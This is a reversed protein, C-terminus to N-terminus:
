QSLRPKFASAALAIAATVFEAHFLYRGLLPLDAHRALAIGRGAHVKFVGVEGAWAPVEVSVDHFSLRERVLPYQCKYFAEKASFILTAAMSQEAETLAKLWRVEGPTCISAWLEPKVSGAVECDMGVAALLKKPAVVAACYGTTHTISGVLAEPWIPRRDDAAKIPFNHIGFETLLARACLRGATFEQARKPIATGLFQAEEPLLLSTDVADRLEAALAGTPFLAGM